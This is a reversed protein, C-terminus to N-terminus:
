NQKEKVKYISHDPFLQPEVKIPKKPTKKRCREQLKCLKVIKSLIAYQKLDELLEAFSKAEERIKKLKQDLQYELQARGDLPIVGHNLADDSPAYCLNYCPLPTRQYKRFRKNTITNNKGNGGDKQLIGDDKKSPRRKPSQSSGYTVNCFRSMDDKSTSIVSTADEKTNRKKYRVMRMYSEYRDLLTSFLDLSVTLNPANRPNTNVGDITGVHSLDVVPAEGKIYSDLNVPLSTEMGPPAGKLLYTYQEPISSSSYNKSLRDIVKVSKEDGDKITSAMTIEVSHDTSSESKTVNKASNDISSLPPLEDSQEVFIELSTLRQDSSTEYSATGANSSFNDRQSSSVDDCKSKNEMINSLNNNSKESNGLRYFTERSPFSSESDITSSKFLDPHLRQVSALSVLSNTYKPKVTSLGLKECVSDTVECEYIYARSKSQDNQKLNQLFINRDRSVKKKYMALSEFKIRKFGKAKAESQSILTSLYNDRQSLSSTMKYRTGFNMAVFNKFNFKIKNQKENQPMKSKYEDMIQQIMMQTTTKISLKGIPVRMSNPDIKDRISFFCHPESRVGQIRLNEIKKRDPLSPRSPQKVIESGQSGKKIEAALKKANRKKLCSLINESSGVVQIGKIRKIKSRKSQPEILAILKRLQTDRPRPSANVKSVSHTSSGFNFPSTEYYPNEDIFLPANKNYLYPDVIDVIGGMCTRIYRKKNYFRRTNFPRDGDKQRRSINVRGYSSNRPDFGRRSKFDSGSGRNSIDESETNCSNSGEAVVNCAEIFTYSMLNELNKAIDFMNKRVIKCGMKFSLAENITQLINGDNRYSRMPKKIKRNCDRITWDIYLHIMRLTQVIKTLFRIIALCKSKFDIERSIMLMKKITKDINNLSLEMYEQYHKLDLNYSTNGDPEVAIVHSKFIDVIEFHQMNYEQIIDDVRKDKIEEPAVDDFHYGEGGTEQLSMKLNELCTIFENAPQCISSSWPKRRKCKSPKIPTLYKYYKSKKSLRLATGGPFYVGVRSKPNYSYHPGYRIPKNRLPYKKQRSYDLSILTKEDPSKVLFLILFKWLMNNRRNNTRKLMREGDKGIRAAGRFRRKREGSRLCSNPLKLGRFYRNDNDDVRFLRKIADKQKKVSAIKKKYEVSDFKNELNEEKLKQMAPGAEIIAKLVKPSVDWSLLAQEVVKNIDCQRVMRGRPLPVKKKKKRRNQMPNWRFKYLSEDSGSIKNKDKEENVLDVARLFCDNIITVGCDNLNVIICKVIEGDCEEM